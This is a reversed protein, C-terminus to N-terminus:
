IIYEDIYYVLTSCSTVSRWQRFGEHPCQTRVDKLRTPTKLEPARQRRLVLYGQREALHTVRRPRWARTDYGGDETGPKLRSRGQLQIALRHCRCVALASSLRRPPGQSLRAITSTHQPYRVSRSTPTIMTRHLRTDFTHKSHALLMYLYPIVRAHSGHPM